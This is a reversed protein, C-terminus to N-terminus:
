SQRDLHERLVPDNKLETLYDNDLSELEELLEPLQKKDPSKLYQNLKYVLERAASPWYLHSIRVLGAELKRNNKAATREATTKAM